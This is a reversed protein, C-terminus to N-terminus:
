PFSPIDIGEDLVTNGIIIVNENDNVLAALEEISTRGKEFRGSPLWQYIQEGGKVFYTERCGNEVLTRALKMGHSIYNVFILTKYKGDYLCKGLSTIYSNRTPHKVIGALYYRDWSRAYVVPEPVPLLTVFPEALFGRNRLVLSPVSAITPGTLGILRFDSHSFELPDSWLTATLGFRYKAKCLEGILVWSESQLHHCEDFFIVDCSNFDNVFYEDDDRIANLVSDIVCVQIKAPEFDNGGGFRSVGDLGRSEFRNAAQKMLFRSETIIYVKKAFGNDLLYKSIVAAVETKGGGTAIELIGRGKSIAKKAAKLQYDRIRHTPDDFKVYDDPIHIKQIPPHDYEFTNAIEVKYRKSLYDYCFDVLGTYLTGDEALYSGKSKDFTLLQKVVEYEAPTSILASHTIGRIFKM